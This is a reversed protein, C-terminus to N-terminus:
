STQHCFIFSIHLLYVTFLSPISYMTYFRHHSIRTFFIVGLQQWEFRCRFRSFHLLLLLHRIIPPSCFCTDESKHLLPFLHGRIPPSCFCTDESQHLASAPTRQNTSYCFCTDELQHLHHNGVQQPSRGSRGPGSPSVFSTM